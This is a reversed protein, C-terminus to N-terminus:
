DRVRVVVTGAIFDHLARRKRNFFLTILEGWIWVNMAYAAWRGWSPELPQLRAFITMWGGTWSADPLRRMACFMSITSLLSLSAQVSCRLAVERWGISDGSTRFVAIRTVMKGITQGYRALLFFEYAPGIIALPFTLAISASKSHSLLWFSFVTIPALVLGDVITAGLRPWFGAYWLQGCEDIEKHRGFDENTSALM